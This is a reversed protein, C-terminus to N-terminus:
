INMNVLDKVTIVFEINIKKEVAIKKINLTNVVTLQKGNSQTLLEFKLLPIMQKFFARGSCFAKNTKFSLTNILKINKGFKVVTKFYKLNELFATDLPLAKKDNKIKGAYKKIRQKLFDPMTCKFIVNNGNASTFNIRESFILKKISDLCGGSIYRGKELLLLNIQKNNLKDTLVVTKYKTKNLIIHKKKINIKESNFNNKVINFLKEFSLKKKFEIYFLIDEINPCSEGNKNKKVTFVLQDIQYPLKESVSTIYKKKESFYKYFNRYAPTKKINKNNIYLFLTNNHKLAVGADIKEPPFTAFIVLLFSFLYRAM